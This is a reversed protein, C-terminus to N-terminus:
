PKLVVSKIGAAETRAQVRQAEERTAFPGLRVRTRPGSATQVVQTYPKLGLKEVREVAARASAPDAFAGVQVVFRQGAAAPAAPSTPV